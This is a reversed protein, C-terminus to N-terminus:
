QSADMSFGSHSVTTSSSFLAQIKSSLAKVTSQSSAGNSTNVNDTVSFSIGSITQTTNNHVYVVSKTSSGGFVPVTGTNDITIAANSIAGNSNQNSSSSGSAVLIGVVLLPQSKKDDDM